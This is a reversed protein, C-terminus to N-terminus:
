AREEVVSVSFVVPNDADPCSVRLHREGSWPFAGGYRLATVFPQISNYASGCMGEPLMGDTIEWTQGVTHGSPCEGRVLIDVIEIRVREGADGM